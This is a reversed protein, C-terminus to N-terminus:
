GPITPNGILKFVLYADMMCTPVIFWFGLGPANLNCVIYGALLVVWIGAYIAVEKAYLDGDKAAWGVLLAYLVYVWIVPQGRGPQNLM